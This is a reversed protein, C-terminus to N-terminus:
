AVGPARAGLDITLAANAQLLELSVRHKEKKQELQIEEDSGSSTDDHDHLGFNVEFLYDDLTPKLEALRVNSKRVSIHRNKSGDNKKHVEVTAIHSARQATVSRGNSEQQKITFPRSVCNKNSKRPRRPPVDLSM